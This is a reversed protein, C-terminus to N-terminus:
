TDDKHSNRLSKLSKLTVVARRFVGILTHVERGSIFARGIVNKFIRSAIRRKGKPFNIEELLQDFFNSLIEKEKLNAPRYRHTSTCTNLAKYLEYLVIAVAHSLNLSPYEPSTEITVVFDCMELDENTLGRSESGFLIAMNGKVNRIINCLQSLTIATRLVNYNWGVRASTGIVMEVDNLANHLNDIIKANMLIDIAHMATRRAGSGIITKPSVILLDRFGFNKMVRAVFGINEEIEPRVLVIKINLTETGESM